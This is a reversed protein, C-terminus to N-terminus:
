DGVYKLGLGDFDRWQWSGSMYTNSDIRANALRMTSTQSDVWATKEGNVWYEWGESGYFGFTQSSVLEDYVLGNNIMTNGTTKLEKAIAIGFRQVGEITIYGRIIMGQMATIYQGLEDAVPRIAASIDGSVAPSIKEYYDFTDVYQKAAAFSASSLREEYAGFDSEAIYTTDIGLVKMVAATNSVGTDLRDGLVGTADNLVEVDDATKIILSKLESVSGKIEELAKSGVSSSSTQKATAAEKIMRNTEVEAVDLTRAMRVLYDRLASLQQAETGSLVPPLERM